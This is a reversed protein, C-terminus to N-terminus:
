EADVDVMACGHPLRSVARVREIVTVFDLGIGDGKGEETFLRSGVADGHMQALVAAVHLVGVDFAGAGEYAGTEVQLHCARLFHNIVGQPELRVGYAEHGLAAFLDGGLATEINHTLALADAFHDGGHAFGPDCGTKKNVWVGRLNLHRCGQFTGPNFQVGSGIGIGVIM